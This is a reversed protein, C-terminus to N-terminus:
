IFFFQFFFFWYNLFNVRFRIKNYFKFLYFMWESDFTIELNRAVEIVVCKLAMQIELYIVFNSHKKNLCWSVILVVFNFIEQNIIQWRSCWGRLCDRNTMYLGIFLVIAKSYTQKTSNGLLFMLLQLYHFDRHVITLEMKVARAVIFNTFSPKKMFNLGFQQSILHHIISYYQFNM